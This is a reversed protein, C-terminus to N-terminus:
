VEWLKPLYVSQNCGALVELDLKPFLGALALVSEFCFLKVSRNAISLSSLCECSLGAQLAVCSDLKCM